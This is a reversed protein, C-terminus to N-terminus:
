HTMTYFIINIGLPFNKRESYNEFFWPDTTEEEWGDGNDTNHCIFVMIRSKDDLIARFHIDHTNGGQHNEEWTVGSDKNAIAARINSTQLSLDNPIDFVSHFLPHTRPVDVPEREPFIQKLAQYVGDWEAQGWFDDIMMFGGNMLYKRLIGAEEETLIINGAGSMFLWPYRFLEPDTIEVVKPDPDVKWSTLEQLRYSLNLDADPFDTWWAYSSRERGTSHYKIRAFTFVDHPFQPNVTWTPINGRDIGGSHYASPRSGGGDSRRFQALTGSIVLTALLILFTRRL